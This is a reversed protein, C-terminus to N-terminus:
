KLLFRHADAVIEKLCGAQFPSKFDISQLLEGFSLSGGKECLDVYRRMAEDPQDRSLRWFQMAGTLALTYDIYYFPAGYVHLQAQWLRGSSEFELDDYQYWPLYTNEMKKWVEAREDPTLDPNQYIEHQFHDIAVGYPIFFLHSSLHIDRLEDARDEGYFLEMHPWTLYELGMSHIECAEMTPWVTDSLPQHRSSWSQFAHGMEHTFVDVDGRTGNFNAYIFPMEYLHLFDCFGGPAKGSRSKLDMLELEIMRDFFQDLGHGMRRFMEQAQSVLWDHDGLPVPNGKPNNFSLDWYKLQDVGITDAQKKALEMLLPVLESIVEGRFTDLDEPGYGIRYMNKYGLQTYNEFGLNIAMENRLKVMDDFIRDFQKRHGCFWQSRAQAVGKRINRDPNEKYPPLESLTLTEGAFEIAASGMLETHESSLKAEEALLSEISSDFSDTDCQWCDFTQKSLAKELDSRYPSDLLAQKMQTELNVYKPWQEDFYDKEAKRTEDKTDQKFRIYTVSAWEKLEMLTEDWQRAVSLAESATQADALQKLLSQYLNSVAELDPRPRHYASFTTM